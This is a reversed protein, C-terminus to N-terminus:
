SPQHLSLCALTAQHVPTPIGLERGARVIAGSIGDVELRRGAELDRALSSRWDPPFHSAFRVTRDPADGGLEVGRARAVAMVERLSAHVLARGEASSLLPGIGCRTLATVAGVGAIFLLKDWLVWPMNDAVQHAIGAREFAAAVRRVRGTPPGQPEGFVIEGAGATHRIVGPLAVQVALHVSGVLVRQDGVAKGIERPHEIGNQLTLVATDPGLLPPLLAAAAGTDYAKVAFLVLDAAGLEAPDSSAPARVTFDGGVGEIRLGDRRIAELHAGRALFSVEEGARALLAGFYGGIAGAAVVAIRM